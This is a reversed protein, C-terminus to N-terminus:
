LVGQPAKRASPATASTLLAKTLSLERCCTGSTIPKTMLIWILGIPKGGRRGRTQHLLGRVSWSKFSSCCELLIAKNTNTYTRMRWVNSGVKKKINRHKKKGRGREGDGESRLQRYLEMYLLLTQNLWTYSIARKERGGPMVNWNHLWYFDFMFFALIIWERPLGPVRTVM